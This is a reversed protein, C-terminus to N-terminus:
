DEKGKEERANKAIKFFETSIQSKVFEFIDDFSDNYVQVQVRRQGVSLKPGHKSFLGIAFARHLPDRFAYRGSNQDYRIVFNAESSCLKRLFATLNGQPYKPEMRQIENFIEARLAGEQSFEALAKLILRANDYKKTKEQRFAKEFTKTLTDSAEDLYKLLAEDMDKGTFHYRVDLSEYIGKTICLNLCLHHCVSAIKNSYRSIAQKLDNPFNLNLYYSGKDVIQKIEDFEMLPVNIEAVREAMESDYEVVERATGVAGIAVTKLSPYKVAMDMFVKMAQSLKPKESISLKHFDELVWCCKAEGLFQALARITLQPPLMRQSREDSESVQRGGITGKIGLYKASIRNDSAVAKRYSQEVLFYPELQDFADLVLQEFSMGIMCRSTVHNEYLQNLKNLLATTKGSGSHGYVVIQKGPTRLADVLKNNIKTREVYTLTAPTTPTFVTFVDYNM